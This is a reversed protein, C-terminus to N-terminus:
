KSTSIPDSRADAPHCVHYVEEFCGVDIFYVNYLNYDSSFQNNLVGMYIGIAWGDARFGYCLDGKLLLLM